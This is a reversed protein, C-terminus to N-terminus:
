QTPTTKLLTFSIRRNRPDNPIEPILNERDARGEVRVVRTPPIGAAILERRAANARDSSLEWNGYKVDSAYGLGDTHGTIALLNPATAAAAAILRILKRGAENLRASGVAFMAVRAQDMLQIRLGEPVREIAVSDALMGIEPSGVLSRRLDRETQDLTIADTAKQAAKDLLNELEARADRSPMPAPAAAQQATPPNTPPNTPALAPNQPVESPPM